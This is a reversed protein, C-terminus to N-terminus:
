LLLFLEVIKNASNGEGMEKILDISINRNGQKVLVNKIFESSFDKNRPSIVCNFGKTVTIPRETNERITITPIGLYAAEEQLGGSDTFLICCNYILNLMNSYSQPELLIISDVNINFDELRKTTRPHAIFLVKYENGSDKLINLTKNVTRMIKILIDKNEVNEQRHLTFIIYKNEKVDFSKYYDSKKITELHSTLTDIMTNGCHYVNKEIGEKKLNDIANLETVFLLNSLRDVLIRNREEPMRMDYSRLGSEIHILFINNLSAALAAALTSNVDGFVIVKDIKEKNFLISLNNLVWAFGEISSNKPYEMKSYNGLYTIDTNKINLEDIFVQSMNHSYHQETHIFFLNDRTIKKCLSNWIPIAKMFNPRTGVIVAFKNKNEM